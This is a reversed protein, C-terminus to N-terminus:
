EAEHLPNLPVSQIIEVTNTHMEMRRLAEMEDGHHLHSLLWFNASVESTLLGSTM